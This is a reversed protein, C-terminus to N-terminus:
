DGSLLPDSLDWAADAEDMLNTIWRSPAEIWSVLLVLLATALKPM